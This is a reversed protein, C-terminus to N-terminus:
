TQTMLDLCTYSPIPLSFSSFLSLGAHKEMRRKKNEEKSRKRDRVRSLSVSVM